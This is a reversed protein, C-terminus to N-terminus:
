MPNGSIINAVILLWLQRHDDRHRILNARSITTSHAIALEENSGQHGRKMMQMKRKRYLLYMWRRPSFLFFKENLEFQSKRDHNEEACTKYYSKVISIKSHSSSPIKKKKIENTSENTMLFWDIYRNAISNSREGFFFFFFNGNSTRIIIKCVNKPVNATSPWACNSWRWWAMIM